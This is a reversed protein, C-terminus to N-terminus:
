EMEKWKWKQLLQEVLFNCVIDQLNLKWLIHHFVSKVAVINTDEGITLSTTPLRVCHHATLM